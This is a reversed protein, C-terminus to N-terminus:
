GPPEPGGRVSAVRTGFVVDLKKILKCMNRDKM